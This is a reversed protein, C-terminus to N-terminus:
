GEPRRAFQDPTGLRVYHAGELRDAIREMAVVARTALTVIAGLKRFTAWAVPAGAGLAAGITTAVEIANVASGASAEPTRAM